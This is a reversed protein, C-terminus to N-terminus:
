DESYDFTIEITVTGKGTSRIYVKGKTTKGEIKYSKEKKVEKKVETIKSKWKDAIEEALINAKGYGKGELSITIYISRVKAKKNLHLEQTEDDDSYLDRAEEIGVPDSIGMYDDFRIRFNVNEIGSPADLPYKSDVEDEDEDFDYDRLEDLYPNYEDEEDRLRKRIEEYYENDGYSEERYDKLLNSIDEELGYEPIVLDEEYDYISPRVNEYMDFNFIRSDPAYFMYQMNGTYEFSVDDKDWLEEKKIGLAKLLAIGTSKDVLSSSILGSLTSAEFYDSEFTRNWPFNLIYRYDLEAVRDYETKGFDIGKKDIFIIDDRGEGVISTECFFPYPTIDSRFQPEIIDKGDLNMLGWEGEERYWFKDNFVYIANEFKSNFIKEGEKDILGWEDDELFSAYGNVFNTVMGWEDDVKIVKKGSIDIFGYGDDEVMILGESISIVDNYKDRCNLLVKGTKDIIMFKREDDSEKGVIAQGNVFGNRVFDYKAKIAVKGKKDFFGWKGDKNKFAALGDNFYSVEEADATFVVKYNEDIFQVKQNDKRVPALGERFEGAMEWKQKSEKVKGDIIKVFRYYHINKKKNFDRIQAIGNVAFSPKVDFEPDVIIEGKLNIFGWDKGKKEQFPILIDGDCLAASNVDAGGGCSAFIVALASFLILKKM